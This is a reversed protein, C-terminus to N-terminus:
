SHATQAQRRSKTRIPLQSSRSRTYRGLIPTSKRARRFNIWEASSPGSHQDDREPLKANSQRFDNEDRERMGITERRHKFLVEQEDELTNVDPAKGKGKGKVKGKADSHRRPLSGPRWSEALSESRGRMGTTAVKYEHGGKISMTNRRRTVVVREPNMDRLDDVTNSMRKVQEERRVTRVSARAVAAYM